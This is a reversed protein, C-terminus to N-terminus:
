FSLLPVASVVLHGGRSEALGAPNGDWVCMLGFGVELAEFMLGFAGFSTVFHNGQSDLRSFSSL